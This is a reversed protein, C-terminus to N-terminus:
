SVHNRLVEIEEFLMSQDGLSCSDNGKCGYHQYDSKQLPSKKSLLSSQKSPTSTIRSTLLQSIKDQLMKIEEAKLNQVTNKIQEMM